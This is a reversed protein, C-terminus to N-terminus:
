IDPPDTASMGSLIIDAVSDLFLRDLPERTLLVRLHIPAIFMEMLRKADMDANLEGRQVARDTIVRMEAYRMEWFKHRMESAVHDDQAAAMMRTLAAGVPSSVYAVLAEGVRLLDGRLSGTDPIELLTKSRDTLADLMLQQTNGWRRYISTQHVGARSSVEAVSLSEAGSEALIDITANLVLRRVRASRGGTRRRIEINM